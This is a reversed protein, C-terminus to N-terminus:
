PRGLPQPRRRQQDARPVAFEVSPPVRTPGGGPAEKGEVGMESCYLTSQEDNLTLSMIV